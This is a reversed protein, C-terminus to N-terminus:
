AKKEHWVGNIMKYEKGNPLTKTLEEKPEQNKPEEFGLLARQEQEHNFQKEPDFYYSRRAPTLKQAKSEAANLIKQWREGAKINAEAPIEYKKIWEKLKKSVDEAKLTEQFRNYTQNTKGAGFRAAESITTNGLAKEAILFDDILKKAKPNTKYESAAKELKLTAGPGSFIGAGKYIMPYLENFLVTNRSSEREKETLQKNFGITEGTDKDKIETDGPKLGNLQRSRIASLDAHQKEKEKQIGQANRYEESNEGFQKKLRAMDLGERAAGTYSSEKNSPHEIDFLKNEQHLRLKDQLKEEPTQAVPAGPDIGYHKKFWGRLIPSRKIAEMDINGNKDKAANFESIAKENLEPKNLGYQQAQEEHLKKAAKDASEQSDYIGLHKGTKKFQEIAENESLIRGDDSVRPILAEKGNDLGIGMSLVTNTGGNPNKVMPRNNLNINGPQILGVPMEKQRKNQVSQIFSNLLDRTIPAKQNEGATKDYIGPISSENGFFGSYDPKPQIYSDEQPEAIQPINGSNNFGGQISPMSSQLQNNQQEMQQQGHIGPIFSQMESAPTANQNGGAGQGFYQMMLKIQNIEHMPDLKMMALKHADAASQNLRGQAAKQLALQELHNQRAQALQERQVVPHMMQAFMNSGTNLGKLLADGPLGPLPIGTAM